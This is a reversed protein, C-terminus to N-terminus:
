RVSSGRTALLVYVSLAQEKSSAHEVYVLITLKVLRSQKTVSIVATDMLAYVCIVTSRFHSFLGNSSTLFMRRERGYVPINDYLILVLDHHSM